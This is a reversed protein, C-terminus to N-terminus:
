NTPIQKQNSRERNWSIRAVIVLPIFLSVIICVAYLWILRNQNEQNDFSLTYNSNSFKQIQFSKCGLIPYWFRTGCRFSCKNVTILDLPMPVVLHDEDFSYPVGNVSTFSGDSVHCFTFVDLSILVLRLDAGPPPEEPFATVM